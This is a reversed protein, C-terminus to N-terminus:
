GDVKIEKIKKIAEADTKEDLCALIRRQMVKMGNSFIEKETDDMAHVQFSLENGRIVNYKQWM